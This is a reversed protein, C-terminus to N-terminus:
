CGGKFLFITELEEPTLGGHMAYFRQEFRGKEHWWISGNDYPLLILNGLREKLKECVPHSGFLGDNILEQTECVRAYNGLRKELLGKAKQLNQPDVYLFYDRCSGAPALPHGDSGCLLLPTLEPITENLYLTTKPDIPIMGHDATVICAEKAQPKFFKELTTFCEDVAKETEKSSIGHRHAEADIDGFYLYFLGKQDRLSSMKELCGSWTHFPVIKAGRFMWNSYISDAISDHQFVFSNVQHEKLLQFLTSEPLLQQPTAVKKLAGLEKDGAFTYLLPAIVRGLSPEYYFWECVGTQGVEKGSTLTTIHAATTTPFQSTIKSVIGERFFQSLFPYRDHYKELFQWGFGDILFVFVRDYADSQWCDTPLANGEIGFLKLVTGPIRSFAYSEYLPKLFPTKWKANDVAKISAHNIM